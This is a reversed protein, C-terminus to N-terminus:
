ALGIVFVGVLKKLCCGGGGSRNQKNMNGEGKGRSNGSADTSISLLLFCNWIIAFEITRSYLRVGQLFFFPLFM